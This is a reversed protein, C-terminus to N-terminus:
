INRQDPQHLVDLLFCDATLNKGRTCYQICERKRISYHEIDLLFFGGRLETRRIDELEYRLKSSSVFRLLGQKGLMESTFIGMLRLPRHPKKNSIGNHKEDDM